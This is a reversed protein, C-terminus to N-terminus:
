WVCCATTLTTLEQEVSMNPKWALLAQGWGFGTKMKGATVRVVETSTRWTQGKKIRRWTVVNWLVTRSQPGPWEDGRWFLLTFPVCSTSWSNPGKGHTWWVVARQVLQKKYVQRFCKILGL